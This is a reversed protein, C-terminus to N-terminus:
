LPWSARKEIGLKLFRHNSSIVKMLSSPVGQLPQSSGKLTIKRQVVEVQQRLWKSFFRPEGAMPVLIYEHEHNPEAEM